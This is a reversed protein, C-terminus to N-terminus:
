GRPNHWVDDDWEDDLDDDFLDRKTAELVDDQNLLAEDVLGALENYVEALAPRGRDLNGDRNEMTVFKLARLETRTLDKLAEEIM